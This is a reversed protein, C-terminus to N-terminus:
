EEDSKDAPAVFGPVEVPSPVDKVVIGARLGNSATITLEVNHAEIELIDYKEGNVIVSVPVSGFKEFEKQLKDIIVDLHM